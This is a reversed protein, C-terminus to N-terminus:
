GARTGFHIVAARTTMFWVAIQDNFRSGEVPQNAVDTVVRMGGEGVVVKGTCAPTVALASNVFFLSSVAALLKLMSRV